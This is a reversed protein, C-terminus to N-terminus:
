RKVFPRLDLSVLATDSLKLGVVSLASSLFKGATDRPKVDHEKLSVEFPKQTRILMVYKAEQYRNGGPTVEYIVLSLDVVKSKTIGHVTFDGEATLRISHAKGIEDQVAVSKQFSPPNVKLVKKIEFTAWRNKERIEKTVNDGAEFWNIMHGAQTKNKDEDSFTSVKVATLDAQITGTTKEPHDFDVHVTGKVRDIQGRTTELPAPIEFKVTSMAVSPNFEFAVMEARLGRLSFLSLALFAGFFVM